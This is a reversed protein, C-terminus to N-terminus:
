MARANVFMIIFLTIFMLTLISEAKTLMMTRMSKNQRMIIVHVVTGCIHGDVKVVVFYVVNIVEYLVKTM